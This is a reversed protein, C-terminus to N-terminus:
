KIKKKERRKEIIRIMFGPCPPVPRPVPVVPCPPVSYYIQGYDDALWLKEKINCKTVLKINLSLVM